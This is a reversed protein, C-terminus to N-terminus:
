GRPLVLEFRTGWPGPVYYLDGGHANAYAKAIALGLGTGSGGGHEFREFLRPVLHEPVGPGADSVTIRIHRDRTEARIHVPPEGHQRANAILNTVVREIVLPDAVVALSPDVDVTVDDGNVLEALTRALVLPQAQVEIARADLRSLDLLQEILRRLRDSQYWATEELEARVEPELESGRARLTTLLGYVSTAPTRLEHSAIAVFNLKMQDLRVMEQHVRAKEIALAAREAVLQLLEVDDTDFDHPHLTGVHLVGIVINRLLLPVGLLSKIGKERLIPNLVHAHDVDPLIVPRREAAVKGAFGGGVPIRVGQEVEEEIGVASRAVLENREPDLLLAACTDVGLIDRTRVLLAHLLEELELHALAVDTVAQVSELRSRAKKQSEFLRAHDIALAAREAVLQLLEADFEQPELTAVGLEGILEGSVELHVVYRSATDHLPQTDVVRDRDAEHVVISCSDVGLIESIRVVLTQLLTDLELHALAADTIAQLQEVRRGSGTSAGARM